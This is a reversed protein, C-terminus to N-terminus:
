STSRDRGVVVLAVAMPPDGPILEAAEATADYEGVPLAGACADWADPCSIM